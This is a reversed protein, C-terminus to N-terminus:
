GADRVTPLLHLTVPWRVPPTGFANRTNRVIKKGVLRNGIAGILAGIGIPLMKGFLLVGRRLTYKRVAYRLLRSNLQALAPMPLSAVGESLWAGNTRRSGLLEGLAHKTDDGVLVALVLARRRERNRDPVGYVAATALVFFATAELFVATEGAVASLVALTGIGPLVAASGAAAGSATVAAVYRKQLKSVIVAPTAGPNARRLREVYATAAPGQIRTSREIIHALARASKKPKGNTAAPLWDDASHTRRASM